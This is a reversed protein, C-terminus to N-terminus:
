KKKPVRPPTSEKLVEAVDSLIFSRQIYNELINVIATLQVFTPSYGRHASANGADTVAGLINKEASSILGASVMADIKGTFGGPQDGVQLFSARDFLTRAGITSLVLLDSDLAVYLEDFLTRLVTDSIESSWDPKNRRIPPPWYKTQVGHQMTMTGDPDYVIEDWESFWFEHRIFINQCGCCELVDYTHKWNVEGDSGNVTHTARVFASREGKCKNCHAKVVKSEEVMNKMVVEKSDTSTDQAAPEVLHWGKVSIMVKNGVGRTIIGETEMLSVLKNARDGDLTGVISALVKETPLEVTGLQDDDLTMALWRLLNIQQKNISPLPKKTLEDLNISTIETWSESKNSDSLARIAHSMRARSKPEDEALRSSLMALASGTIEFKGCRPCDFQKFDGTGSRGSETASMCIPCNTMTIGATSIDNQLM